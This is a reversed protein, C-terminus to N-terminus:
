PAPAKPAGWSDVEVPAPLGAEKLQPLVTSRDGVLVLVTRELPIATKAAANLAAARTTETAALDEGLTEFPAGNEVYGTATGIIGSLGSFAGVADNKVLGRAKGAEEETVDGSSLRAFEALFEKIGAGTDKANVEAGASFTGLVPGASFGAGSHYVYGHKERLNQELRSTFSGGLVTGLLRLPVRSPDAFRPAPGLFRVSTQPADPRDVLYLRPGKGPSPAYAAPVAPLAPRQGSATWDGFSAELAVKVEAAPLSSAVLLTATDPRVLTAHAAKVKDLTIASASGPTGDVPWAYPHADGFLLHSAVRDAVAPAEDESRAIEDLTLRKVREFDAPSFRPRRVADALLPLGASFNRSLVTLSAQVSRRTAGTSLSGGLSAVAEGFALADRAGAGEDLMGAMMSALGAESASADLAGDPRFVVAVRTLPLDPTRWLQVPIGNALTFREPAPPRFAASSGDAPRTDRASSPRKPQEPLVRFVVRANPTLVQRATSLVSAPTANRYRDLDRVFSNPEGWADEYFNLFDARTDLRQLSSLKALETTAKRQALEGPNPGEKLLRAIEEDVVREIRDLDADPRTQVDIRLYSGLAQSANSASVSSALKDDIVLRKYLRSSRGEALVSALLDCEADAQTMAAPTHYAFSVQPFQVKDVMAGRKVGDLKAAPLPKRPPEAGRPISGFLREVLPKVAAPDFDGAVVLSANNPVYFTAFFDKVDSAVAAKLDEASGITPAHYPHGPPYLLQQIALEARGYPQNEYTQRLENLVVDRQLDVKKQDMTRPLDELREADLWLLTPLLSAPGSSYYHTGDSGTSANNSGGSVEMLRDFEGNPVRETGMFMLHEFLHAFGSRRAPDDKSGVRYWISITAIPLTHDPYLIVTMGNALKYKEVALSQACAAASAGLSVILVAAALVRRM